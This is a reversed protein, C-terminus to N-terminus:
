PVSFFFGEERLPTTRSPSSVLWHEAVALVSNKSDFRELQTVKGFCYLLMTTWPVCLHM